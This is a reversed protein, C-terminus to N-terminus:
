TVLPARGGGGVGWGWDWLKEATGAYPLRTRILQTTRETYRFIVYKEFLTPYGRHQIRDGTYLKNLNVPEQSHQALRSASRCSKTEVKNVTDAYNLTLISCPRHNAVFSEDKMRYAFTIVVHLFVIHFCSSAFYRPINWGVSDQDSWIQYRVSLAHQEASRRLARDGPPQCLDGPVYLKHWRWSLPVFLM